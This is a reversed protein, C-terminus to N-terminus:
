DADFKAALDTQRQPGTDWLHMTLLEQGPHLGVAGFLRCPHAIHVRTVRIPANSVPGNAAASPQDALV